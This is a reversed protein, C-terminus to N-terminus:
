TSPGRPTAQLRFRAPREAVALTAAGLNAFDPEEFTLLPRRRGSAICAFRPEGDGHLTVVRWPGAFDADPTAPHPERRAFRALFDSSFANCEDSRDRM